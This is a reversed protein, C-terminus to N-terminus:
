LILCLFVLEHLFALKSFNTKLLSEYSTLSKLMKLLLLKTAPDSTSNLYQLWVM